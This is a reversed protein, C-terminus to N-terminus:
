GRDGLRVDPEALAALRSGLQELVLDEVSGSGPVGLLELIRGEVDGGPDEDPGHRSWLEILEAIARRYREGQVPDELVAEIVFISGWAPPDVRAVDLQWGSVLKEERRQTGRTARVDFGLALGRGLLAELRQRTETEM